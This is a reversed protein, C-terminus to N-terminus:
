APKRVNEAEQERRRMSERFRYSEGNMLLIHARHTLRDLLAATLSENGFVETWKDFELNTTIIMSGREYRSACFQFLLEAGTRTFPVYGLEDLIILDHSLWSKELKSLRYEQQAELLENALESATFFRVRLGQRCACIGFAIALHTKGTSSNGLLIVNEKQRIFECQGLLLVKNKNLSPIAAFDFDALTKTLPFRATKLRRRLSREERGIIEKRSRSLPWTIWTPKTEKQLRGLWRM